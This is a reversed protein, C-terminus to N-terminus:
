VVRVKPEGNKRSTDDVYIHVIKDPHKREEELRRAAVIALRESVSILRRGVFTAGCQGALRIAPPHLRLSRPLKAVHDPDGDRGGGICCDGGRQSGADAELVLARGVAVIEDPKISLDDILQLDRAPCALAVAVHDDAQGLRRSGARM